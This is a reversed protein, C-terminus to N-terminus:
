QVGNWHGDPGVRNCRERGTCQACPVMGVGDKYHYVTPFSSHGKPIFPFIYLQEKDIEIERTGPKYGAPLKQILNGNTILYRIAPVTRGTLYAFEHISIKEM